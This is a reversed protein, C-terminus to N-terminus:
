CIILKKTKSKFVRIKASVILSKLNLLSKIELLNTLVRLNMKKKGMQYSNKLIQNM